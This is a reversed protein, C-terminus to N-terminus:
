NFKILCNKLNNFEKGCDNKNLNNSASILVCKSYILSEKKCKDKIKEATKKFYTLPKLKFLKIIDNNKM